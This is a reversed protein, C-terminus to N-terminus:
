DADEVEEPWWQESEPAATSTTKGSQKTTNGYRRENPDHEILRVRQKAEIGTVTKMNDFDRPRLGRRIWEERLEELTPIQLGEVAENSKSEQQHQALTLMRTFFNREEQALFKLYGQAGMVGTWELVKRRQMKKRLLPKGKNEGKTELVTKGRKDKVEVWIPQGEDDVAPETIWKETPFGSMQAANLVLLRLLQPFKNRSGVPRGGRNIDEPHERLRAKVMKTTRTNEKYKVRLYFSHGFGGGRRLKFHQPMLRAARVIARLVVSAARSARIVSLRSGLFGAHSFHFRKAPSGAFAM